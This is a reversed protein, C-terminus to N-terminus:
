VRGSVQGWLLRARREFLSTDPRDLLVPTLTVYGIAPFAEAAIPRALASCRAHAARATNAMLRLSAAEDRAERPLFTRGHVRWANNASLLSAYGWARAAEAILAEPLALECAAAALKLVGGATALAHADLAAWSAFPAASFDAEGHAAILEAFASLPLPAEAHAAALAALAPHLAGSAALDGLADRWWALRLAGAAPERAREGVCAIEHGVAYIAM